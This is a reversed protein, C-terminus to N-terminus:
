IWQYLGLFSKTFLHARVRQHFISLYSSLHWTQCTTGCLRVVLFAYNTVITLRVPPVALHNTTASHLPRCEDALYMPSKTLHFLTNLCSDMCSKTCWFPSSTSSESRCVIFIKLPGKPNKVGMTVAHTIHDLRRLYYTLRVAVNLVLQLWHILYVSLGVLVSNGYDFRTLVISAVLSKFTDTPVSRCIQRLQRLVAVCRSVTHQVHIRM